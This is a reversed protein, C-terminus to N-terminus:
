PPPPMESMRPLGGADHVVEDIHAVAREIVDGLVDRDIDSLRKLYICAKGTKHPGLKALLDQYGVLGSMLYITLNAKRPAFGVKFTDGERGSAYKYHVPGFGVIAGSVVPREGTVTRMLDALRRSDERKDADDIGQLFEDLTTAASRKL